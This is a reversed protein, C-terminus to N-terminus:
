KRIDGAIITRMQDTLEAYSSEAAADLYDLMRRRTNEAEDEVVRSLQPDAAIAKQIDAGKKWCGDDELQQLFDSYERVARWAADRRQQQYRTKFSEVAKAVKPRTAELEVMSISGKIRIPRMPVTDLLTLSEDIMQHLRAPPAPTKQQNMQYEFFADEFKKSGFSALIQADTPKRIRKPDPEPPSAALGTPPPSLPEDAAIGLGKLHRPDVSFTRADTLDVVLSDGWATSLPATPTPAAFVADLSATAAQISSKIRTRRQADAETNLKKLLESRAERLHEAIETDQPLSARAHSLLAIARTYDGAALAQLGRNKELEGEERRLQEASKQLPPLAISKSTSRATTENGDRSRNNKEWDSVTGLDVFHRGNWERVRTEGVPKGEPITQACLPAVLLLSVIVAARGHHWGFSVSVPFQTPTQKM